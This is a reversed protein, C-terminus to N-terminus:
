MAACSSPQVEAGKSEPEKAKAETLRQAFKRWKDKKRQVLMQMVKTAQVYDAFAGSHTRLMGLTESEDRKYWDFGYWMLSSKTIIAGADSPRLDNLVLLHDLILEIEEEKRERLTLLYCAM